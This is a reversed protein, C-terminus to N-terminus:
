VPSNTHTLLLPTTRAPLRCARGGARRSMHPLWRAEGARVKLKAVSTAASREERRQAAECQREFTARESAVFRQRELVRKQEDENIRALLAVEDELAAMKTSMREEALLLLDGTAEAEQRLRERETAWLSQKERLSKANLLCSLQPPHLSAAFAAFCYLVLAPHAIHLHSSRFHQQPCARMKM